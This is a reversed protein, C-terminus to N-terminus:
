AEDEILEHVQYVLVKEYRGTAHNFMLKFRCIRDINKDKNSSPSSTNQNFNSFNKKFKKKFKKM